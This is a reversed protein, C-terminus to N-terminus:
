GDVEGDDLGTSLAKARNPLHWLGLWARAAARSASAENEAASPAGLGSSAFEVIGMRAGSDGRVCASSVRCHSCAVPEVAMPPAPTAVRPVFAGARWAHILTGVALDFARAQDRDKADITLEAIRPDTDEHLHVYRGVGGGAASYVFGQLLDGSGIARLRKQERSRATLTDVKPKGTKYDVFDVADGSHMSDGANSARDARDARFHVELSTGLHPGLDLVGASETALVGKREGGAWELAQARELHPRAREALARVLGRLMLGEERAVKVASAQLLAEFEPQSPWRVTRPSPANPGAEAIRELVEHVLTGVTRSELAPLAALPDPTPELGLIKELFTQWGCRAVRELTTVFLREHRPDGAFAPGVLGDFPGPGRGAAPPRDITDLVDGRARAIRAARPRAADWEAAGRPEAAEVAALTIHEAWTGRAEEGGRRAGAISARVAGEFATTTAGQRRAGRGFLAPVVEPISAPAHAALRQFFPSAGLEVGDDDTRPRMLVVSPAAALLEAFLHREEAHARRGVPFDGLVQAFRQRLADPLLPDETPRRPFRDRVLGLVILADFAMGRAEMVSLVQVGGGRGGLPVRTAPEIARGLLATWEALTAPTHPGLEDALARAHKILTGLAVTRPGDPSWGLEDIAFSQTRAAHEAAPREASSWTNLTEVCRIAAARAAELRSRHIRRRGSPRPAGRAYAVEFDFESDEGNGGDDDEDESSPSEDQSEDHSEDHRAGTGADEANVPDSRGIASRVPLAFEGHTDVVDAPVLTCLQDLRGVGLAHLALVLEAADGWLGNESRAFLFRAVSTAGANAQVDLLALLGLGGPETPGRAGPASIALGIRAAHIRLARTYPGLERAVIAIREQPIGAHAREASRELAFRAEAELGMAEALVVTPTSCPVPDGGDPSSVARLREGLRDPFDSALARTEAAVGRAATAVASAFLPAPELPVSWLVHTRPRRALAELFDSLLGTADSFGVIWVETDGLLADGHSRVLETAQRLAAARGGRGCAAREREVDLAAHVLARAREIEAPSAVDRAEDLLEELPELLDPSLGADILDRLGPLVAAYGDDLGALPRKLMPRRAAARAGFLEILADGRPASAGARALVDLALSAATRVSVGLLAGGAGRVLAACLHVRLADSPVAVVLPSACREPHARVEDARARMRSKLWNEAARSGRVPHWRGAAARRAFEAHEVGEASKKADVARM